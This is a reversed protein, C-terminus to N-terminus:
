KIRDITLDLSNNSKKDIILHLSSNEKNNYLTDYIIQIIESIDVNEHFSGSYYKPNEYIIDLLEQINAALDSMSVKGKKPENNNFAIM